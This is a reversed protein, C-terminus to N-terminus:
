SGGTTISNGDGSWSANKDVFCNEDGKLSANPSVRWAGDQCSIRVNNWYVRQCPGPFSYGYYSGDPFVSEHGHDAKGLNFNVYAGNHRHQITTAACSDCTTGDGGCVGCTDLVKNSGLVGDCGKAQPVCDKATYETTLALKVQSADTLHRITYSIPVGPNDKDFNAGSVLFTRIKEFQDQGTVANIALEANGGLGFAKVTSENIVTKWSASVSGGASVSPGSYSGKVAAELDLSSAKSEFLIYFIRGYTVGSVYVPPNGAAAYPALDQATVGPAFVGAAGQPADFAMTFYEQSFQILYRSKEDKKDVSLAAAASWNTGEVNADVAVALQESSYISEFSYSFKAPTKGTYNALIENQAQIASSLSPEEMKKFFPGGGGSALTLTITGPARKVPVPDLIGGAMSKGQVLSGPWLVDANPNLAVFKEPVKTLSYNTYKCQYTTGGEGPVQLTEPKSTEVPAADAKKDTTLFGAARVLANIKGAEDATEGAAGAGPVDQAGPSDVGAAGIEADPTASGCAVVLAVLSVAGLKIFTRM